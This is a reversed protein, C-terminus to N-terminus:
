NHYGSSRRRGGENRVNSVEQRFRRLDALNVSYADQQTMLGSTPVRTKSSTRIVLVPPHLPRPSLLRGRGVM